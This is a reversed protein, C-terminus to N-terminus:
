EEAAGEQEALFVQPAFDDVEDQYQEAQEEQKDAGQLLGVAGLSALECPVTRDTGHCDKERPIKKVACISGDGVQM